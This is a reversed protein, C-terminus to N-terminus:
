EWAAIYSVSIMAMVLAAYVHESRCYLLTQPEEPNVWLADNPDLLQTCHPSIQSYEDSEAM